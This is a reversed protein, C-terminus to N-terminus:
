CCPTLVSCNPTLVNNADSTPDDIDLIFNIETVEELTKLQQNQVKQKEIETCSVFPGKDISPLTGWHAM